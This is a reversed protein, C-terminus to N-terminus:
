KKVTSFAVHKIYPQAELLPKITQAQSESFKTKGIGSLKFKDKYNLYVIEINLYRITPLSYIVDGIDGSIKCARM